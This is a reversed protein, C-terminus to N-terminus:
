DKGRMAVVPLVRTAVIAPYLTSVLSVLLIIVGGFILNSAGFSPYLAPGGFIFVTVDNPAPIGVIGLWTILAAGLGAGLGGSLLCLVTTELLTMIMITSKQAGIARMTGIEPIREMTAMVMSNNIIVLAVLFIIFIATYLVLRIVLIFQGVVGSAAQWDIAKIGLADSKETLLAIVETVTTPDKLIVAANLIVGKHVEDESFTNQTLESTDREIAVDIGITTSSETEIESDEGFLAAEADEASISEVGAEAKIDSLEARQESTMKGYLARFTVIDMLNTAGALDSTELGRFNFTGFIKVKVSKAYGSKTFSQLVIEDGVKVDYIDIFPAIKEYFYAYHQSINQDNVTLFETMLGDIEADPKQLLERLMTTVLPAEQADLQFVVSSSTKAMREIRNKLVEDTAIVSGKDVEKKIADFERAVRNKIAKEYYYKSFLIGRTGTPVMEGDVIQFRNFAEKFHDLDTAIYNIYILRGETSLPALKTDLAELQESPDDVFGQWFDDKLVGLIIEREQAIQAPDTSIEAQNTNEELMLRAIQQVHAKKQLLAKSDGNQAAERLDFLVRDLEGKGFSVANSIAMPVVAEIQPIELLKEELVQFDNIEGIEQAANMGGFIALDDKADKDFVQIHGTVSSTISEQMARQISDLLSTGVVVLLTGFVMISGVIANKVRHSVMTRLALMTLMLMRDM